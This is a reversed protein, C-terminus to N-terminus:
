TSSATGINIKAAFMMVILEIASRRNRAALASTPCRGPPSPCTVTVVDISNEEMDENREGLHYNVASEIAVNMRHLVM